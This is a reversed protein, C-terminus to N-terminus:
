WVMATVTAMDAMNVAVVSTLVPRKVWLLVM